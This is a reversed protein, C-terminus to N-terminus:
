GIGEFDDVLGRSPLTGTPGGAYVNLATLSRPLSTLSRRIATGSPDRLITSRGRAAALGIPSLTVVTERGIPYEVITYTGDPKQITTVRRVQGDSILALSLILMAAGFVIILRKSM